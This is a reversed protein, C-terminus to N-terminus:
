PLDARTYRSSDLTLPDYASGGGELFRSFFEVYQLRTTHVYAGLGSLALNLIHGFAMVVIFGIIQPGRWGILMAMMNVVMAIVGTALTLALIRTYSLFDSLYGTVGYLQGLGGFLRKFPNRSRSGFLLIIAAGVIALIAGLPQGAVKLDTALLGLGIIILYWPAIQTLGERLEGRKARAYIDIGMGVFIHLVGFAISVVMMRIPDDIPNFWLTPFDRAKSTVETM